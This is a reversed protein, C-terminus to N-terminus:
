KKPHLSSPNYGSHQQFLTTFHSPRYGLEAAVEKVAHGQQLLEKAKEMRKKTLYEYPGMGFVQKFVKKLTYDNVAVKKALDPIHFHMKLDSTIIEEAKYIAELEKETPTLLPEQIKNVLYLLHIFIDKVKNELFLSLLPEDYRCRLIAQVQELLENDMWGAILHQEEHLLSLNRAPLMESAWNTDIRLLLFFLEENGANLKFYDDSPHLILYRNKHVSHLTTETQVSLMGSFLFVITIHDPPSIIEAAQQSALQWHHLQLSYHAAHIQQITLVGFTGTTHVPTGGPLGIGKFQPPLTPKWQLPGHSLTLLDQNM